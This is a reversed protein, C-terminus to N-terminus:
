KANWNEWGGRSVLNPACRALEVFDGWELTLWADARHLEALVTTRIKTCASELARSVKSEHWGWMQGIERQTVEHIHVLKLMLLMEPPAAAFANLVAQRLLGVLLNDPQHAAFSGGREPESTQSAASKERPLERRLAERRKYDILRNTAVTILWSSLACRGEYRLLLPEGSSGFCDGWLDALLDEAETSSAGRKCLTAKLQASYRVRLAGAASENGDLVQKVFLLDPSRDSIGRDKTADKAKDPPDLVFDEKVQAPPSRLGSYINDAKLLHFRRAYQGIGLNPTL